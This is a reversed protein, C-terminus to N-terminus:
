ALNTCKEKCVTRTREFSKGSNRARFDDPSNFKQSPRNEKESEVGGVEYNTVPLGRSVQRFERFIRETSDFGVPVLLVNNVKM